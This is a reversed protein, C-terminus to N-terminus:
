TTTEEEEPDAFDSCWVTIYGTVPAVRHGGTDKGHVTVQAVLELIKGQSTLEKLALLPAELKAIHRILVFPIEVDEGTIPALMSVPQTFSYPVDVGEVNRGDTRKFVVDIQDVLVDMYPTGDELPDLPLSQLAVVGNDNIISGKTVVDSFVTTSDEGELDKGTMSIIQLISGSTSDDELRNCSTLFLAAIILFFIKLRM